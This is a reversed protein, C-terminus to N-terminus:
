VTDEFKVVKYLSRITGHDVNCCLQCFWVSVTGGLLGRDEVTSVGPQQHRKGSSPVRLYWFAQVMWDWSHCLGLTEVCKSPVILMCESFDLSAVEPVLSTVFSVSLFRGLDKTAQRFHFRSKKRRSSWSVKDREQLFRDHAKPLNELAAPDGQSNETPAESSTEHIGSLRRWNRLPM